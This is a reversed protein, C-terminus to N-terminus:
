QKTYKTEVANSLLYMRVKNEVAMKILSQRISEDGWGAPMDEESAYAYTKLWTQKCNDLDNETIYLNEKQFISYIIMDEKVAFEADLRCQDALESEPFDFFFTTYDDLSMDYEKAFARYNAEYDEAYMQLVDEPYKIAESNNYIVSFVEDQNLDRWYSLDVILIAATIDVTKGSYTDYSFDDPFTMQFTFEDNLKHGIFQQDFEDSIFAGEGVDFSYIGSYPEDNEGVIDLTMKITVNDFDAITDRAPDTYAEYEIGKYECLSVYDDLNLGDYYSTVEVKVEQPQSDKGCACFSFALCITLIVSILKKM